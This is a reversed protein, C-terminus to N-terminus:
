PVFISEGVFRASNFTQPVREVVERIRSGGLSGVLGRCPSYTPFLGWGDQGDSGARPALSFSDGAALAAGGRQIAWMILINSGRPACTRLSLPPRSWPSLYIPLRFERLDM